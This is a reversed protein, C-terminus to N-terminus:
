PGALTEAALDAPRRDDLRRRALDAGLRMMPREVYRYSALSAALTVVVTIAVLAAMYVWRDLALGNLVYAGLLLPLMHFLYTSYSAEGLRKLIPHALLRGLPRVWFLAALVGIWVPAAAERAYVGYAAVLVCFAAVMTTRRPHERARWLYYSAIGVAFWPAYRGIFAANGSLPGHGGLVFLGAGLALAAVVGTRGLSILGVVLPAILYFQFEVSLSWAQGLLAVSGRPLMADPVLGQALVLHTALHPWFQALSAAINGLRITSFQPHFPAHTLASAQIPLTAICLGLAILYAPWLRFVRRIMFAGYAERKDCVLGTIVFGSLAMFVLVASDNHILDGVRDSFFWAVHGAVVWWAMLARVGELEALREHKM